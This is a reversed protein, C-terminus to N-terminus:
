KITGKASSRRELKILTDISYASHFEPRSLQPMVRSQGGIVRTVWYRVIVGVLRPQKMHTVEVYLM